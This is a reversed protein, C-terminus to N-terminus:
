FLPQFTGYHNSTMYSSGDSGQVLREAGRNVGKVFQNVDYEKYQILNGSSDTTPLKGERNYFVDGGRYGEPANGNHSRVYEDVDYYKKNEATIQKSEKVPENSERALEDRNQKPVSSVVGVVLTTAVATKDFIRFALDSRYQKRGIDYLVVSFADSFLEVIATGDKIKYQISDTDFLGFAGPNDAEDLYLTSGSVHYPYRSYTGKKMDCVLIDSELFQIELNKYEVPGKKVEFVKGMFGNAFLPIALVIILLVTIVIKKM